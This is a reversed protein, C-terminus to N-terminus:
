DVKEFDGECKICVPKLGDWQVGGGEFHHWQNSTQDPFVVVVHDGCEKCRWVDAKAWRRAERKAEQLDM